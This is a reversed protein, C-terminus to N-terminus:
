WLEQDLFDINTNSLTLFLMELVVKLSIDVVLFIKEFFRVWNAKDVVLFAAVIM